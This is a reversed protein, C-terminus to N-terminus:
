LSKLTHALVGVLAEIMGENTNKKFQPYLLRAKEEMVPVDDIVRISVFPVRYRYCVQACPTSEMDAVRAKRVHNMIKKAYSRNDVSMDGSVLLGQHLGIGGDIMHSVIGDDSLYFQPQGKYHGFSEMSQSVDYYSFHSPVVLSGPLLASTLSKATGAMIVAKPKVDTILDNVTLTVNVKGVATEIILLQNGEYCGLLGGNTRVPSSDAFLTKSIEEQLGPMSTIIGIREM